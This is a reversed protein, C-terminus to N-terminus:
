LGARGSSAILMPWNQFMTSSCAVPLAPSRSREASGAARSCVSTSARSRSSAPPPTVSPSSAARPQAGPTHRLRGADPFRGAAAVPDDLRRSGAGPFPTRRSGRYRARPGTLFRAVILQPRAPLAVRLGMATRSRRLHPSGSRRASVPTRLGPSSRSECVLPPASGDAAAHKVITNPFPVLTEM